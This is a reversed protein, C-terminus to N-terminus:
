LRELRVIQVSNEDAGWSALRFLLKELSNAIDAACAFEEKTVQEPRCVRLSRIVLGKALIEGPKGMLVAGHGVTLPRSAKCFHIIATPNAELQRQRSLKEDTRHLFIAM